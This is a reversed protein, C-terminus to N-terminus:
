RLKPRKFILSPNIRSVTGVLEWGQGGLENIHKSLSPGKKWDPLEEGNVWRPLPKWWGVRPDYDSVVELYEWHQVAM